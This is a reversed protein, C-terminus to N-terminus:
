STSGDRPLWTGGVGFASGGPVPAIEGPQAPMRSIVGSSRMSRGRRHGGLSSSIVSAVWPLTLSAARARPQRAARQMASEGAEADPRSSGITASGARRRPHRRAPSPNGAIVTSSHMAPRRPSRLARGPVRPVM